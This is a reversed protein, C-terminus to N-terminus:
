GWQNIECARGVYFRQDLGHGTALPLCASGWCQGMQNRGLVSRVSYRADLNQAPLELLEFIEYWEEMNIKSKWYTEMPAIQRQQM